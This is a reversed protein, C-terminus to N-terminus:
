KFKKSKSSYRKAVKKFNSDNWWSEYDKYYVMIFDRGIETEAFVFTMEKFSYAAHNYQTKFMADKTEIIKSVNSMLEDAESEELNVYSFGNYGKNSYVDENYFVFLLGKKKLEDCQYYVTTLEGSKSATLPDIEVKVIDGDPINLIQQCVFKRCVLIAIDKNYERRFLMGLSSGGESQPKTVQASVEIEGFILFLFSILIAKQM